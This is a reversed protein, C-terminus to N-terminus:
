IREFSSLIFSEFLHIEFIVISILVKFNEKFMSLFFINSLRCNLKGILSLHRKIYDFIKTTIQIRNGINIISFFSNFKSFFSSNVPNLFLIIM